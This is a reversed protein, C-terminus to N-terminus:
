KNDTIKQYVFENNERMEAKMAYMRADAEKQAHYFDEPKNAHFEDFGYAVTFQYQVSKQNFVNEEFKRCAEKIKKLDPDKILTIFEDGGIRYINGIKRFADMACESFTKIIKDGYLHGYSDNIKKLNNMDFLIICYHEDSGKYNEVFNYYATRNFVQTQFDIFALKRYTESEALRNMRKVSSRYVNIGLLVFFILFAYVIIGTTEYSNIFFHVIEILAGVILFIMPVGWGMAVKNKARIGKIIESCLYIIIIFMLSIAIFMSNYFLKIGFMQLLIMLFCIVTYVYTMYKIFRSNRNDTLEEIFYLFTIPLFIFYIYNVLWNFIPNASIMQVFCCDSLLWCSTQVSLWGLSRLTHDNTFAKRYLFALILLIFGVLLILLGGIIKGKSRTFLYTKLSSHSGAYVETYIGATDPYLSQLEICVTKGKLNQPDPIQVIHYLLGVVPLWKPYGEGMFSDILDNDIYVKVYQRESFFSINFDGSMNETFDHYIRTKSQKDVPAKNKGGLPLNCEKKVGKEFYYWGSSFNQAPEDHVNVKQINFYKFYMVFWFAFVVIYVVTIFNQISIRKNNILKNHINM